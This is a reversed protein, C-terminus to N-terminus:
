LSVVVLDLNEVSDIELLGMVVIRKLIDVGFLVNQLEHIGQDGIRLAVSFGAVIEPLFGFRKEVRCEYSIDMIFGRFFFLVKGRQDFHDICHFDALIVFGKFVRDIQRKLLECAAFRVM